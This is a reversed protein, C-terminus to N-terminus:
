KRRLAMARQQGSTYDSTEITQTMAARIPNLDVYHRVHWSRPRMSFGYQVFFRNGFKGTERDEFNARQAIKQSLFRMWWSIDSM